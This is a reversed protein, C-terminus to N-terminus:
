SYAATEREKSSKSARRPQKWKSFLSLGAMFFFGAASTLLWPMLSPGVTPWLIYITLLNYLGMVLEGWVVPDVPLLYSSKVVGSQGNRLDFKPTREFTGGQQFLGALAGIGTSLSIGVGFLILVPLLKLRGWLHPNHETRALSYILPPGFSALITFPFYQFLHSNLLGVPLALILSLVVLPFPLYMSIHMLGMYRKYWPMDAHLVRRALKRLTQIAGKAWRYQQKKVADIHAPVEGPVVVQPLYVFRWGKIEARYSLDLDETLTDGSWGGADEVCARRWIGGSGNFSMMLDGGYRGGQEVVFHGDLALSQLRTVLNFQDNKHGWRTQVFGVREDQFHPIVQKLWNKGPTFDADFVAIFEGTATLLGNALAGAKYECRETRHIYQIDVGHQQYSQVLPRVIDVTMDSSDDLVQIQLRGAPYDLNTVAQLLRKVMYRENYLPLQITVRPWEALPQPQASEWVKKRNFIYVFSLILSNLGYLTLVIMLVGYLVQLAISLVTWATTGM